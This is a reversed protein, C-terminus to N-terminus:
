IWKGDICILTGFIAKHESKLNFLAELAEGITDDTAGSECLRYYAQQARNIARISSEYSM